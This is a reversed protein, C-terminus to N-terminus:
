QTLVLPFDTGQDPNQSDGKCGATCQFRGNAALFFNTALNLTLKLIDEAQAVQRKLKQNENVLEQRFVKQVNKAFVQLLSVLWFRDEKEKNFQNRLNQRLLAM